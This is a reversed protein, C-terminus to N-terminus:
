RGGAGRVTAMGFLRNAHIEMLRPLLVGRRCDTAYILEDTAPRWTPEYCNCGPAGIERYRNDSLNKLRIRWNSGVPREAYALTGGNPSLVPRALEGEGGILMEPLGGHLRIEEIRTDGEPGAVYILKEDDPSFAPDRPSDAAATRRWVAEEHLYIASRRVMAFLAGKHSVVFDDVGETGPIAEVAGESERFAMVRVGFEQLLEFYAPTGSDPLSPRFVHGHFSFRRISGGQVLHLKYFEGNISAFGIENASAAASGSYIAGNEIVAPEGPPNPAGEYAAMCASAALIAATAPIGQRRPIKRIEEWGAIAFALLLLWFRPFLWRWEGTLPLVVLINIALFAIRRGRRWEDILLAAPLPLLAFTYSASNPSVLLMAIMWWGFLKRTARHNTAVRLTGLTSFVFVALAFGTWLFTFLAPSDLAPQPNLEVERVLLRRMLTAASGNGPNYPDLTEGRLARPLIASVFFEVDHWGFLVVAGALCAILTFAMALAAPKKRCAIFFLVLPLGYLKLAAALGAAVGAAGDRGRDIWYACLSLLWLILLYYQGTVLNSRLAPYSCFAITWVIWLELRTTRAILVLSAVLLVVNVILWLQRATEPSLFSLPVLPLMTLPTQPIYGGLQLGLGAQAIQQQFWPWSYFFHLPQHRRALLAATYYNPFDGARRSWGPLIANVFLILAGAAVLATVLFSAAWKDRRM